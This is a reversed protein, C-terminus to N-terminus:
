VIIGRLIMLVGGASIRVQSEVQHSTLRTRRGRGPQISAAPDIEPGPEM